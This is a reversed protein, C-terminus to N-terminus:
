ATVVYPKESGVKIDIYYGVDHYDSMIDSRDYNLKNMADKLEILFDKVKGTYYDDIWYHNINYEAKGDKDVIAFPGSKLTVVLTLNNRVSITGKVKHKSLVAKIMPALLAKKAQNMYAM